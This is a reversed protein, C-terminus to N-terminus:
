CPPVSNFLSWKVPIIRGCTWGEQLLMPAVGLVVERPRLLTGLTGLRWEGPSPGQCLRVGATGAKRVWLHM